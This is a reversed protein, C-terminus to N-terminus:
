ATEKGNKVADLRAQFETLRALEDALVAEASVAYRGLSRPARKIGAQGDWVGARCFDDTYGQANANYFRGRGSREYCGLEILVPGTFDKPVAPYTEPRYASM